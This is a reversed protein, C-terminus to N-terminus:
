THGNIEEHDFEIANILIPADGKGARARASSWRWDTVESVLGRRVPNYEIYEIAKRVRAMEYLNRDFGGGAQWFPVATKGGFVVRLRPLMQPAGEQWDAIVRRAVLAKIARIHKNWVGQPPPQLPAAYEAIIRADIRDTKALQGSARAFDRIRKPNVVAVSFGGGQLEIALNMEYGGTSELVILAPARTGLHTVCATIGDNNNEFRQHKEEVLDYLDFFRKAVDIGIYTTM